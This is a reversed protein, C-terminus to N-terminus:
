YLSNQSDNIYYSYNASNTFYTESAKQEILIHTDDFKQLLKLEEGKLVNKLKDFVEENEANAKKYDNNQKIMDRECLMNYIFEIIDSNM